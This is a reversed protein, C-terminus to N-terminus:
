DGVAEAWLCIPWACGPGVLGIKVDGASQRSAGADIEVRGRRRYANLKKQREDKQWGEEKDSM